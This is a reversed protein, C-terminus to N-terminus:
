KLPIKVQECKYGALYWAIRVIFFPLSLPVAVMVCLLVLIADVITLFRRM